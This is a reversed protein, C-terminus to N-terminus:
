ATFLTKYARLMETLDTYDMERSWRNRNQRFRHVKLLHELGPNEKVLIIYVYRKIPDYPDHLSYHVFVITNVSAYQEVWRPIFTLLKKQKIAGDKGKIMMRPIHKFVNRPNLAIFILGKEKVADKLTDAFLLMNEVPKHNLTNILESAQFSGKNMLEAINTFTKPSLRESTLGKTDSYLGM